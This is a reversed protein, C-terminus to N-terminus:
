SPVSSKVRQGCDIAFPQRKSQRGLRVPGNQSHVGRSGGSWTVDIGSGNVKVPRQPRNDCDVRVTLALEIISAVADM